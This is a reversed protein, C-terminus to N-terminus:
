LNDEEPNDFLPYVRCSHKRELREAERATMCFLAVADRPVIELSLDGRHRYEREARWDTIKGSSQWRWRDTAAIGPQEGRSYYEVERIGFRSVFGRDIGIGYPEFTMEGHRARWRMLPVVECPHLASFSVTPTHDPMHRGSALLRGSHIIRELTALGSRPWSSSELVARYFDIKREGLWPRSVSRTWHIIYRNEPQAIANSLRLQSFERKIPVKRAEYDIQFRREIPRGTQEAQSVLAAMRGARRISIPLLLDAQDMIRQDRAAMAVKKGADASLEVPRFEVRDLHLDFEEAIRDCQALFSTESSVPLYLKLQLRLDSALATLLEWTQLGISSVLGLNAEKLWRGAAITQRVWNTDRTPRVPQRSLLMAAFRNM